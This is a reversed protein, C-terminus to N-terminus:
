FFRIFLVRDFAAKVAIFKSLKKGAFNIGHLSSSFAFFRIGMGNEEFTDVFNIADIVNLLVVIAQLFFSFKSTVFKAFDEVTEFLVTHNVSVIKVFLGDAFRESKM